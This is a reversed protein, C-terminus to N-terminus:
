PACGSAPPRRRRAAKLFTVIGCQEVGLDHVTVGPRKALERRLLAALAKVRAEIAEIGLGLAYRVAVGLGIQGAVFREWNEFRRADDRVVYTDADIWSAAELDIFPPELTASPTAGCTSSAPAARAACTSAARHGLAHPLRDAARRGRAPRGVPLRRASLPHRAARRDPRGRRGPQRARGPDPRAHDRHAAHAARDRARARRRRDARVADDDVVDIEIGVRPKMQLFALYNSAYEARATIIRDGARFPIAYFAM